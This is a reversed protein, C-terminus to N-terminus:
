PSARRASPLRKSSRRREPGKQGADLGPLTFCVTTGGGDGESEIWARGGHLEVIRSVLALGIGTGEQSPDLQEFLEFVRAHYRPAIGIGNDRVFIVSGDEGPRLGIEIRPAPQPGMFRAANDLLNYFVEILRHREGIVTPLDAAVEVNMRGLDHRGANAALAERAAQGLDVAEPVPPRGRLQTLDVLEQFLRGIEGVAGRIREVDTGIREKDRAKVDRVLLGLFGEITFLPTRLDHSLTHTLQQMEANRVELEAILRTRETEMEKRWALEEALSVNGERLALRSREQFRHQVLAVAGVTVIWVFIWVERAARSAEHLLGLAHFVYHVAPLVLASTVTQWSNSYLNEGPQAEGGAADPVDRESPWRAALGLLAFPLNWAFYAFPMWRRWDTPDALYIGWGLLDCFAMLGAVGAMAGYIRRWLSARSRQRLLLFRGLLFTELVLGLLMSPVYATYSEIDLFLPILSFYVLLGLVLVSAAPWDLVQEWGRRPPAKVHPRQEAAAMAFVYFLSYFVDATMRVAPPSPGPVVLLLVNVLWWCFTAAMLGAWFRRERKGADPFDERRRHLAALALTLVLVLPYRERLLVSQDGPLLPVLYYLAAGAVAAVLAWSLRDPVM